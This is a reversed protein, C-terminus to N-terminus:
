LYFNAFLNIIKVLWARISVDVCLHGCEQEGFAEAIDSSQTGQPLAFNRVLNGLALSLCAHCVTVLWVQQFGCLCRFM